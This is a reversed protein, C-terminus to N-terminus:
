WHRCWRWWSATMANPITKKEASPKEITQAPPPPIAAPAIPTPAPTTAPAAKDKKRGILAVFIDPRTTTAADPSSPGTLTLRADILGDALDATGALTLDAGQAFVMTRGIRMQGAMITVAADLRPVNLAGGDLMANAVVSLMDDTPEARKSAILQQGYSYM